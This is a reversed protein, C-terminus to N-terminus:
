DYEPSEKYKNGLDVKMSELLTAVEDIFDQSSKLSNTVLKEEYDKYKKWLAKTLNDKYPCDAFAWIVNSVDILMFSQFKAGNDSENKNKIENKLKDSVKLILEFRQIIYGRGYPETKFRGNKCKFRLINCFVVYLSILIFVEIIFCLLCKSLLLVHVLGLSAWVFWTFQAIFMNLRSPSFKGPKVTWLNTDLGKIRNHFGGMAYIRSYPFYDPDREFNCIIDEFSEQRAKAAKVLAIWIGSVCLGIFCLGLAILNLIKYCIHREPCTLFFNAILYGYGTFILLEFGWALISHQWLQGLEANYREYLKDRVNEISVQEKDRKLSANVISNIEIRSM